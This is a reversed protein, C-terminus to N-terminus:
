YQISYSRLSSLSRRIISCCSSRVKEGKAKFYKLDEGDFVVWRRQYPKDNKKSNIISFMDVLFPSLPPSM